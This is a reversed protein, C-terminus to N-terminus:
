VEEFHEITLTFVTAGGVTIPTSLPIPMPAGELPTSVYEVRQHCSKHIAEIASKEQDATFGILLTVNSQGLFGGSSALRTVSLGAKKLARIAKQVDQVQIVALMLRDKPSNPQHPHASPESPLSPQSWSNM